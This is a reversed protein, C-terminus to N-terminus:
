AGRKKNIAAMVASYDRTLAKAVPQVNEPLSAVDLEESGAAGPVMDGYGGVMSGEPPIGGTTENLVQNLAENKTYNVFKKAAPPAPPAKV